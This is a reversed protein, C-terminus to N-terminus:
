SFSVKQGDVKLKALQVDIGSILQNSTLVATNGGSLDIQDLAVNTRELWELMEDLADNFQGTELLANQLNARREIISSQLRKWEKNASNLPEQLSELVEFSQNTKTNAKLDNFRQNLLQIKM